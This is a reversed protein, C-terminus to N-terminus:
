PTLDVFRAKMRLNPSTGESWAAVYIDGSVHAFAPPYPAAAAATVEVEDGITFAAGDYTFRQVILAGFQGANVRYYAVAASSEGIAIRPAFDFRRSAGLVEVPREATPRAIDTLRVDTAGPIVDGSFAAFVADGDAVLHSGTTEALGDVIVEFSGGAGESATVVQSVEDDPSRDWALVLGATTSTIAVNQHTVMPEYAPEIADGSFSGDPAVRQAFAHFRNLDDLGRAGTVVFGGDEAIVTSGSHNGPVIAGERMTRIDVDADGVPTLDSSLGRGFVHLNDTGGTGDDSTWAAFYATGDFALEPDIDNFDSTNIRVPVGASGDCALTTVFVDFGGAPDPKNFAVVVHEGNWVLSAHIQTDIGDPDVEFDVGTVVDQPCRPATADGDTAADAADPVTSDSADSGADVSSDGPPPRRDDGCAALLSTTLFILSLDRTRM